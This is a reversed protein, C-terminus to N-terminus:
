GGFDDRGARADLVLDAFREPDIRVLHRHRGFRRARYKLSPFRCLKELSEADISLENEEDPSDFRAFIQAAEDFGEILQQAGSRQRWLQHERASLSPQHVIEHREDFLLSQFIPNTQGTIEM